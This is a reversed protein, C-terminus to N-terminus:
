EPLPNLEPYRCRVEDSVDAIEGVGVIRWLLSELQKGKHMAHLRIYELERQLYSLDPKDTAARYIRFAVFEGIEDAQKIYHIEQEPSVFSDLYKCRVLKRNSNPGVSVAFVETFTGNQQPRLARIPAIINQKLHGNALLPSLDFLLTQERECAFRDSIPDRTMGVGIAAIRFSKSTKELMYPVSHLHRMVQNKLADALEKVEINQESLQDLKARNHIILRNLFEVGNHVEHGIAAALHLALGNKRSKVIRYPLQQLQAKPSLEQLKPFSLNVEHINEESLAETLNLQLGRSSIDQTVAEYDKGNLHILVSTRFTYRPEIRRESFQMSIPRLTQKTLKKLGFCKLENASLSSQWRQYRAQGAECTCDVLQILHSYRALQQETLPAYNQDDGPLISAKYTQNHDIQNAYMRFVRWGSKKAGFGLFLPMLHPQQQLEALTAGYFFVRGQAHFTFSFLLGHAVKNPESILANIRDSNLVVPLQNIENDDAFHHLLGQNDHSLLVNTAHYDGQEDREVFVPLHPYHPLYHREFGMGSANVLLDNIDVKYRFKFGRILNTLMESLKESGGARKLRLVCDDDKSSADAVLYEVGQQLDEFYFEDNLETLKILLPQNLDLNHRVPIKVRAGGVSLDITSGAIEKVGPQSVLIKISYNMREETRRIYNGLIIGRVKYSDDTEDIDNLSRQRRKRETHMNMVHEYVGMTYNNRYLALATEFDQKAAEDLFHRQGGFSVESCLADSKDRLDIVRMCPSALRNIEMKLLFRTSNSEKATLRAFIEEFSPEMMMPKLQEILSAHAEPSM